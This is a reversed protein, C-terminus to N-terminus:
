SKDGDSLDDGATAEMDAIPVLYPRMSDMTKPGIGRVDQLQELDRFPGHTARHEVIRRALGEGIDPLLALEPWDAQNIDIAFQIERPEARDIDILGRGWTAQYAWHLGLAALAVALVGAALLQDRRRLIWRPGDRESSQRQSTM